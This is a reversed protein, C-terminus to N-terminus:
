HHADVGVPMALQQAQLHRRGLVAGAPQREEAVQLLVRLMAANPRQQPGRAHDAAELLAIAEDRTL